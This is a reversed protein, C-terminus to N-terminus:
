IWENDDSAPVSTSPTASATGNASKPTKVAGILPTDAPIDALNLATPLHGNSRPRVPTAPDVIEVLPTGITDTLVERRKIDIRVFAANSGPRIAQVERAWCATALRDLQSQLDSLSLGPRLWIWVREGVLTPRALLILPLSGSRSRVIFQTFCVRLRHRVAVCYAVAVIPRRLAPVAAPVGVVLAVIVLRPILTTYAALTLWGLLLLGGTTIEIAWWWIRRLVFWAKVLAWAISGFLLGVVIGLLVAVIAGANGPIKTQILDLGGVMTLLEAIIGVTWFAIKANRASTRLVHTELITVTGGSKGGLLAGSNSKSM